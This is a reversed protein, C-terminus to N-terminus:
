ERHRRLSELDAQVNIANIVDRTRRLVDRRDLHAYRMTTKIDMHGLVEKVEYLSVGNQILRTAHTHRLTHITCGHLGARALARRLALGAYGRKGGKKNQFVFPSGSRENYRRTLTAHARDTMFLVSENQVKPRWIHLTRDELAVQKWDLGAIESYRGGTDLLLIALDYADWMVRKLEDHRGEYPALGKVERKSDLEALLRREDDTSLYRLRHRTSRLSPFEIDPSQYGLRRAHKCTGRILNFLHGITSQSVGEHERDRKLRELDSSTVEDLYRDVRFLRYLAVSNALLTRHNPTSSKSECFMTVADRIVIREKSGLFARAHLERRWEREMQEAARKDSTRASKLYTRGQFQFQIYFFKSGGRRVIGMCVGPNVKCLWVM